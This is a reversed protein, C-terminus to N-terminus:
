ALRLLQRPFQDLGSSRSGRAPMAPEITDLVGELNVAFIARTREPGDPLHRGASGANAIVPDLPADRDVSGTWATMAQRDAVDISQEAVYAGAQRCAAATTPLRGPDRGGFPLRTGPRM